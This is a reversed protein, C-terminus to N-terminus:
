TVVVDWEVEYLGDHGRFEVKGTAGANNAPDTADIKTEVKMPSFFKDTQWSILANILDPGFKIVFAAVAAIAAAVIADGTRPILGKDDVDGSGDGTGENPDMLDTDDPTAASTSSRAAASGMSAREGLVSVPVRGEVVEEVREPSLYGPQAIAYATELTLERKMVEEKLSAEYTKVWEDWAKELGGGERMQSEILMVAFALEVEGTKGALDITLVEKPPNFRAVDKDDFDEYIDFRGSSRASGRLDGSFVAGKIEDNGFAERWSGGMEDRCLVSRIRFTASEAM